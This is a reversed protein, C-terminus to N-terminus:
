PSEDHGDHEDHGYVHAYAGAYNHARDARALSCKGLGALELQM